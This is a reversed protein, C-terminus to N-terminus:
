SPSPIVKIVRGQVLVNDPTTYIPKMNNNAPQLRIRGDKEYYIRKLTTEERDQLWVAVIDGNDAINTHFIIVVDNNNISADIMSDGQVKLAYIKEGALNRPLLVSTYDGNFTGARVQIPEPIQIPEGGAIQGLPLTVLIEDTDELKELETQLRELEAGIDEIEILIKPDTSTGHLAQQEKLKQLRRGHNSILKKIDDKQSM